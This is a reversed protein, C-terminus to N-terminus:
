TTFFHHPETQDYFPRNECAPGKRSKALQAPATQIQEDRGQRNRKDVRDVSLEM